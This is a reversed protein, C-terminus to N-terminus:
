STLIMAAREGSDNAFHCLVKDGLAYGKRAASIAIGLASPVMAAGVEGICDAPHWFDFDEKFDRLIRSMALTTEKFYYQEGGIDTIRYDLEVMKVGASSMSERIAQVLGDARLPKESEVTAEERGFGIGLVSMGARETQRGPGLLVAAGAEGPIFGNSNRSTLVREREEYASLTGGILFSDVGAIICYPVNGRNILELAQKMAVVGGVRGNSITASGEHFSIGLEAQVEQMLQDDLGELRGPREKEAVCLLLPITETKINGAADLCERIAPTVLKVLKTRGRWPQELPVESGMIWEGGKDMFRTEQFNNIGCRIAACSAPANLGIATVMGSAIISLKM